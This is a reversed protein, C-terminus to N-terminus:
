LEQTRAGDRGVSGGLLAERVRALAADVGGGALEVERAGMGRADAVLPLPVSRLDMAAALHGARLDPSSPEAMWSAKTRVVRQAAVMVSGM